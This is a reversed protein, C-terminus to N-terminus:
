LGAAERIRRVQRVTHAHYGPNIERLNQLLEDRDREPVWVLRVPLDDIVSFPVVTLIAESTSLLSWEHTLLAASAAHPISRSRERLVLVADSGYNASRLLTCASRFSSVLAVQLIKAASELGEENTYGDGFWAQIGAISSPLTLEYHEKPMTIATEHHVLHPTAEALKRRFLRQIANHADVSHTRLLRRCWDLM